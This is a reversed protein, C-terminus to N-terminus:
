SMQSDRNVAIRRRDDVRHSVAGILDARSHDLEWMRSVVHDVSRAVGIQPRGIPRGLRIGHGRAVLLDGRRGSAAALMSEM